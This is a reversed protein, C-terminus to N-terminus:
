VYGTSFTRPVSIGVSANGGRCSVDLGASSGPGDEKGCDEQGAYTEKGGKHCRDEKRRSAETEIDGGEKGGM